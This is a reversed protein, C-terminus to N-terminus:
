DHAKKRKNRKATLIGAGATLAALGGIIWPMLGPSGTDALGGGAPARHGAAAPPASASPAPDPIGPLLTGGGTCAPRPATGENGHLLFLLGFGAQQRRVANPAGPDLDLRLDLRMSEGTHLAWGVALDTCTGTGGLPRRGTSRGTTELELGLQGALEADAPGTVAAVSLLADETATNRVWVPASTVSGPVYGTIAGFVPKPLTQAYAAGDMSFQLGPEEARGAAPVSALVLALAAAAAPTRCPGHGSERLIM